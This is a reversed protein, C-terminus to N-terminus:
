RGILRQVQSASFPQGSATVHGLKALEAAVERLSRAKGTKPSKRALRKAERIVAPNSVRYGHNGEVRRGLAKSRRDRAGRLKAVLQAKEFEAVAGLIQRVMAATPTDDTFHNPADVPILEYGLRQLLKHGALQVALDRAFRSANEILIVKAGNGALYELLAQFGPRTDIPDTGAVAADYFERVIELGSRKAYEDIAQRQRPASDGDLNTRSSTRLYAVATSM